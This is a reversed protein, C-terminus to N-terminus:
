SRSQQRKRKNWDVHTRKNIEPVQWSKWYTGKNLYIRAGFAQWAAREPLMTCVAEEHTYIQADRMSRVWRQYFPHTTSGSRAGGPGPFPPRYAPNKELRGLWTNHYQSSTIVFVQDEAGPYDLAAWTPSPLRSPYHIQQHM